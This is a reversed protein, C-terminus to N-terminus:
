KTEKKYFKALITASYYLCSNLRIGVTPTMPGMQEGYAVPLYLVAIEDGSEMDYFHLKGKISSKKVPTGTEIHSPKYVMKYKSDPDDDNFVLGSKKFKKNLGMMFYNAFSIKDKKWGKEWKVPDKGKEKVKNLKYEIFEEESDLGDLSTKSMDFEVLITAPERLFDINGKVFKAHKQAFATM